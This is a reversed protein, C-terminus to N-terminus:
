AKFHPFSQETEFSYTAGNENTYNTGTTGSLKLTVPVGPAGIIYVEANMDTIELVSFQGLFKRLADNVEPRLRHLSFKGNFGFVTGNDPEDTGLQLNAKEEDFPIELWEKGVKLVAPNFSEFDHHFAIRIKAIGGINDGEYYNM